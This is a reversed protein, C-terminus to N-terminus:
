QRTVMFIDGFIWNGPLDIDDSILFQRVTEVLESRSISGDGNADLSVFSKGVLSANLHFSIFIDLYETLSITGNGDADYLDFLHGVAGELFDDRQAEESNVLNEDIFQLWEEMTCKGDHNADIYTELGQWLRECQQRVVQSEPTDLEEGRVVCLNEAIGVFDDKEIYGNRDFDLLNYIFEHKTRQLDTLM